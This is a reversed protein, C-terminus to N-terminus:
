FSIRWEGIAAAVTVGACVTKPILLTGGALAAARECVCGVGVTKKVFESESFAGPVAALAEASYFATEAGLSQAFALLGAEERKVDISAVRWVARPDIGHASLVTLAAERIAAEPAGRRCGIGLTVVRPILRLTAAFPQGTHIGIFIGLAGEEGATLGAPLAAPLPAEACVPVEGTLIAASVAKATELSSIACRHSAAWADPSFRGRGDTATTIVPAAGLADALRAALANAGGIHGSLIPIVFRGQDDLVLVAPDDAKSKLHPAIERVAIGCACIFILAEHAGFLAGMDARISAHASFGYRAAYKETSHIASPPLGLAEAARRALVAGDDSFCFLAANM